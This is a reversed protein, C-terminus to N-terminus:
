EHLVKCAMGSPSTQKGAESEEDNGLRSYPKWTTASGQM